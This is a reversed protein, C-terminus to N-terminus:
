DTLRHHHEKEAYLARDAQAILDSLARVRDGPRCHAAAIGFSVSVPVPGHNLSALAARVRAVVQLAGAAPTNPLLVAFEDGGFRVALDMRRLSRQLAGAVSRLVQDGESHGRTDNIQKLRDVDLLVVALDGGHREISAAVREFFENLISRNPLETLPDRSELAVRADADRVRRALFTLLARAFAPSSVLLQDVIERTVEYCVVPELAIASASRPHNDLLAIEGFVQGPGLNHLVVEGSGPASPWSISIQVWGSSILFLSDGRDGQRIIVDGAGFRREHVHAALWALLGPAIDALVPIRALARVPDTNEM